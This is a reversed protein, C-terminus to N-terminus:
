APCPVAHRSLIKQLYAQAEPWNVFEDLAEQESIQEVQMCVDDICEGSIASELLKEVTYDPPEVECSSGDFFAGRYGGERTM